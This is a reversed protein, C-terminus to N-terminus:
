EQANANEIVAAFTVLYELQNDDESFPGSLAKFRQKILGFSEVRARLNRVLRNYNKRLPEMEQAPQDLHKSKRGRKESYPVLFRSGAILNSNRASEFHCDAVVTCGQLDNSLETSHTKLFDGDFTKPSYPGWIKQVFGHCDSLMMFRRGPGNEKFSWYPDKKSISRKGRVRVDTSDMWMHVKIKGHKDETPVTDLIIPKSHEKLKKLSQISIKLKSWKFLMKRACRINHLISEKSSRFPTPIMTLLKDYGKATADKYICLLTYYVGFNKAEKKDGYLFKAQLNKRAHPIIELLSDEGFNNLVEKTLVRL